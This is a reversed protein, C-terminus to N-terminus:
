VRQSALNSYHMDRYTQTHTHIQIGAAYIRFLYVAHCVSFSKRAVLVYVYVSGSVHAGQKHFHYKFSKIM